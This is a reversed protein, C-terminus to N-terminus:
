WEDYDTLDIEAQCACCKVRSVTGLSTPTFIYSYRGGIAGSKVGHKKNHKSIFTFVSRTPKGWPINFKIDKDIM